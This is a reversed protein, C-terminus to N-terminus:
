SNYEQSLAWPSTAAATMNGMGAVMTEKAAKSVAATTPWAAAAAVAAAAPGSQYYQGM